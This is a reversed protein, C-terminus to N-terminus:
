TEFNDTTYWATKHNHKDDLKANVDINKLEEILGNVLKDIEFSSSINLVINENIASLEMLPPGDIPSAEIILKYFYKELNGWNLKGVYSTVFSPIKQVTDRHQMSIKKATKIDSNIIKNNFEKNRLYREIVKDKTLNEIIYNRTNHYLSNNSNLIQKKTFIIPVQYTSYFRSELINFLHRTNCVICALIIQDKMDKYNNILAKATLCPLISSPSTNLKKVTTLLSDKSFSINYITKKIKKNKSSIHYIKSPDFNLSIDKKQNKIKYREIIQYPDDNETTKPSEGPLWVGNKDIHSNHMKSIYLYLVTHIYQLVIKGDGLAHALYFTIYRNGYSVYHFHYNTQSSFLNLSNQNKAVIIKKNNHKTELQNKNNLYLEIAFYPYRKISQQVADNLIDANVCDNTFFKLKVVNCFKDDANYLATATCHPKM